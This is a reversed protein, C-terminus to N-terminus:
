YIDKGIFYIGVSAANDTYSCVYKRDYAPHWINITKSTGM